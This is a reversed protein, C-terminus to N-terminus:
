INHIIKKQHKHEVLDEDSSSQFQSIYEDDSRIGTNKKSESCTEKLIDAIAEKSLYRKRSTNLSHM